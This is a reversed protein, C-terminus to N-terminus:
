PREEGEQLRRIDEQDQGSGRLAKMGALGGRSVVSLPGHEWEVEMRSKWVEELAPSVLILDLPLVDELEPDPFAMRYIRVDDARTPVWGTDLTFGLDSALSKISELDREEVLLDIGLTARPSAHVAMALGGCLAYPIRQRRLERVLRELHDIIEM